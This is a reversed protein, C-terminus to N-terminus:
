WESRGFGLADALHRECMAAPDDRRARECDECRASEDCVRETRLDAFGQAVREGHRDDFKPDTRSTTPRRM